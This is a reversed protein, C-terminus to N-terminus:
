EAGKRKPALNQLDPDRRRGDLKKVPLFPHRHMDALRGVLLSPIGGISAMQGRGLLRKELMNGLPKPFLGLLDTRFCGGQHVPQEGQAIVGQAIETADLPQKTKGPRHGDVTQFLRDPGTPLEPFIKRAAPGQLPQDGRGQNRRSRNM